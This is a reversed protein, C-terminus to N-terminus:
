LNQPLTVIINPIVNLSWGNLSSVFGLRREPLNCIRCMDYAVPLRGSRYLSFWYNMGGSCNVSGGPCNGALWTECLVSWHSLHFLYKRLMYHLSGWWSSLSISVFKVLREEQMCRLYFSQLWSFGVSKYNGSVCLFSEQARAKFGSLNICGRITNVARVLSLTM